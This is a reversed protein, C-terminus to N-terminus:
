KASQLEKRPRGMKKRPVVALDPRKVYAACVRAVLESLPLGEKDAEEALLRKLEPHTNVSINTVEIAERFIRDKKLSM